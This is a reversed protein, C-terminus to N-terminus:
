RLAFRLVRWRFARLAAATPEMRRGLMRGYEAM